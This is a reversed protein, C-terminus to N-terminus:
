RGYGAETLLNAVRIRARYLRSKVTGEPLSFYRALEQISIDEAEHLYLLARDTPDLERLARILHLQLDQRLIGQEPTEGSASLELGPLDELSVQRSAVRASRRMVDSAANRCVSYIFAGVSSKKRLNKLSRYLRILAEQSAEEAMDPDFGVFASCFGRIRDWWRWVLREFAGRDGGAAHLALEADITEDSAEHQSLTFYRPKDEM